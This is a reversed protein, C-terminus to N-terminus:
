AMLAAKQSIHFIQLEPGRLYTGFARGPTGTEDALTAWFLVSELAPVRRQWQIRKWMPEIRWTAPLPACTRSHLRPKHSLKLRLLM